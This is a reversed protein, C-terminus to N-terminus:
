KPSNTNIDKSITAMVDELAQIRGRLSAAEERAKAADKVAEDREARVKTYREAQRSAEQASVKRQEQQVTQEAVMQAKLVALQEAVQNKEGQAAELASNLKSGEAESKEAAMKASQESAALRERVKTLEVAQAQNERTIDAIRDQASELEARLGDLQEELDDVTQSADALEREAQERQEAATRIVEAVRREAAKVAKDNLEVALSALRETLAKTVAAVEDAVEIPLEAVPETKVVSQSSVYEDWVQRLRSPNGGGVKTRLAFGTINRGSEQLEQGAKIIEEQAFEVPRM